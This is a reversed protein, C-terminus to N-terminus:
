LTKRFENIINIQEITPKRTDISPEDLSKGLNYADLQLQKLAIELLGFTEDTFTGNRLAKTINKCEDNIEEMTRGKMGVFPTEPNAGRTVNSGEYLKLEKLHRIDTEKDYDAKITSYGFSHEKIIGAEYLKMLDSSYSTDILPESEFYLGKSDEKLVNFRGHPQSWNHQNLFYISNKRESISKKFAGPVVIDGYSDVNGFSSLYGTAIRKKVDLDKLEGFLSKFELIGKM